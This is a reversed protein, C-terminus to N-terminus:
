LVRRRKPKNLTVKSLLGGALWNALHQAARLPATEPDDFVAILECLRGFPVGKAAEIWMMAEEPSMARVMPTTDHRWVCVSQPPDYTEVAPSPAGDKVAMWIALANTTLPLLCVSPHPTFVLREWKEPAIAQLDSLAVVSADSADFAAALTRELRALESLEPDAAYPAATALFDPLPEAFWRANQTRSPHAAVFQQAMTRFADAGLYAKLCEHEIGVVEVLRGVYAHRYVGLLVDNTTRGNGPILSLVSLDGTLMAQQFASQLAALTPANRRTADTTSASKANSPARAKDASRKTM